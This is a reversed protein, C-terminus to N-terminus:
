NYKKRIEFLLYAGLLIGIIESRGSYMALLSIISSITGIILAYFSYDWGVKKMQLLPRFALISFVASILGLLITTFVTIGAMGNKLVVLPSLLVGVMGAGLLAILSLVGFILSLWPIIKTLVDLGKEPLHPLNSSIGALWTELAGAHGRLKSAAGHHAHHSEHNHDHENHNHSTEMSFKIVRRIIITYFM